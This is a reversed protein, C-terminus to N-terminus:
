RCEKLLRTYQKRDMNATRLLGRIIEVSIEDYQPIIVPRLVGDKEYVRHSSAQRVFFFGALLFVCELVKWHQPALRSM